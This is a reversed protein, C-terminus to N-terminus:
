YKAASIARKVEYRILKLDPNEGTFLKFQKAAQRVFMDVGTITTCGAQRAQKIFLTQEPNYVTDFVMAKKDFWEADFPTVDMEPYMGVPTCNILVDCEFNARSPWDVPECDLATALADAKRFDRACITVNAKARKLGFAIARAVGGSGLILVRAGELTGGEQREEITKSVSEVAASCDTNYGYVNPNKFVLTNAARIGAVNDDLANILKIVSEKHPITVSLGCIDMESCANVFQELYERPVRFPLYIYDLGKDRLCTNHVIPSLSHAVPDAIVGLIKTDKGISDYKYYDRMQEFSLMGPALKRDSSFTAYTFPAGFKGCLLRSTVGMEGMCFAITPIQSDRCLRLATINDMPNNAMTAIKIIDPDLETMQHHIEELNSPTEDFNHYSIIRQTDKYRPIQEAIDMEIDVYDAGDAIATRLVMVRDSESKMWKGGDAPRRCTAVVPCPRDKLLRKLDVPRRIYDLRLEVLEAGQESLHKHEAMMMKHRGRGVSVCIM